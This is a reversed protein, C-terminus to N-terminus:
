RMDVRPLCVFSMCVKNLVIAFRAQQDIGDNLTEETEKEDEELFTEEIRGKSNIAGIMLQVLAHRYNDNLTRAADVVLLSFDVTQLESAATVILDRDLREEKANELRM